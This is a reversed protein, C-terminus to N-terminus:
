IKIENIESWMFKKKKKKEKEEKKRVWGGVVVNLACLLKKGRINTHKMGISFITTGDDNAGKQFIYNHGFFNSIIKKNLNKTWSLINIM